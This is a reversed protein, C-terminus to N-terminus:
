ALGGAEFEYVIAELREPALDSSIKVVDDKSLNFGKMVAADLKSSASHLKPGTFSMCFSKDNIIQILKSTLAAIASRNEMPIPIDDIEYNNIHNNSSTLRVRWEVVLSNLVGLLFLASHRSSGPEVVLYNCSNALINGPSVLAFAMRKQMELFACQRGVIRWKSVDQKKSSTKLSQLFHTKHIINRSREGVPNDLRFPRIQDGRILRTKGAGIFERYFSVDCEGRRNSIWSINGVTPHAHLKELISLGDSCTNPVPYDVASIAALLRIPVKTGPGRFGPIERSPGTIYFSGTRSSAEAVLICTPQNVGLFFKGSESLLDIREVSSEKFLKARISSASRDNLLSSPVIAGLRGGPGLWDLSRALFLRQWDLTGVAAPVYTDMNRFYRALLSLNQKREDFLRQLGSESLKIARSKETYDSRLAKLRGYPPNLLVVDPKAGRMATIWHRAGLGILQSHSLDSSKPGDLDLLANGEFINSVSHTPVNALLALIRKTLNVCRPSIDIGLLQENVVRNSFAERSGLSHELAPIKEIARHYFYILLEYSAALFVGSGCAPDLVRLGLAAHMRSPDNSRLAALLPSGITRVAIYWAVSPPTFYTGMLKSLTLNKQFGPGNAKPIEWLERSFCASAAGALEMPSKGEAAIKEIAMDSIQMSLALSQLPAKIDLRRALRRAEVPLQQIFHNANKVEPAETLLRSRTERALYDAKRATFASYVDFLSSLASTSEDSVSESSASSYGAQPCSILTSNSPQERLM